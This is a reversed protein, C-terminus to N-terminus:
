FYIKKALVNKSVFLYFTHLSVCTFNSIHLLTIYCVGRREMNFLVMFSKTMMMNAMKDAETDENRGM